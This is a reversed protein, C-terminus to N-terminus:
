LKKESIGSALLVAKSQDNRPIPMFYLKRILLFYWEKNKVISFGEEGEIVNEFATKGNIQITLHNKSSIVASASDMTGLLSRKLMLRNRILLAFFLIFIVGSFLFVSVASQWSPDKAAFGPLFCLGGIVGLVAGIILLFYHSLFFYEPYSKLTDQKKYSFAFEKIDPIIQGEEINQETNKGEEM